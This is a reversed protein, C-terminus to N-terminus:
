IIHQYNLKSIFIRKKMWIKFKELKILQLTDVLKQNKNSMLNKLKKVITNNM